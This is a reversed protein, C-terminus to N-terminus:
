ILDKYAKYTENFCQEWSFKISQAFGALKLSERCSSINNLADVIDEITITDLLLAANGAVEPISSRNVAIVPCGARMSELVPIGFGEYESPYLLCYATNYLTNLEENTIKGLHEFRNPLIADLMIKEKATLNGGGVIGLRLAKCQAISKVAIDFNKYGGRAGIFLVMNDTPLDLPRYSDSVGNHIVQIKTEDVDCFRVLDNATNQSVCIILDSAKIAKNKQWSHVWRQPGSMYLEYTFDHVTTVIPLSHKDPIRYYTSHFIDASDNKWQFDRYRELFRPTRKKSGASLTRESTYEVISYEESAVRSIIEKFYVTVGGYAQLNSIIGDYLIKM